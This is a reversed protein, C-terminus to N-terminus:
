SRRREASRMQYESRLIRRRKGSRHQHRNRRVAQPAPFRGPQQLQSFRLRRYRIGPSAKGVSGLVSVCGRGQRRGHCPKQANELRARPGACCAPRDARHCPALGNVHGLPICVYQQPSTSYISNGPAAIHVTHTGFNSFWTRNNTHDMAAVSIVNPLYFNSPYHPYLDNDDNGAAAIFLIGAERHTDIADRLAQSFVYYGWSNNSAIINVPDASRTKLMYLYQLCEIADGDNGSGDSGLFKCPLIKATWNVGVVGIGNNGAAAITGSVHTGHGQDDMPDGTGTLANIGHVDDIYGNSDDDIGNGPIERPNTWINAALDQHNYDVGTDIVALITDPSGTTVTWAEPANIDADISSGTIQGTNQLGWLNIFLPENPLTQARYIYNPEAYLM